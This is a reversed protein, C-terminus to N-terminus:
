EPGLLQECRYVGFMGLKNVANRGSEQRRASQKAASAIDAFFVKANGRRMAGPNQM